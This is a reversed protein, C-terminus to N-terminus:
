KSHVVLLQSVFVVATPEPEGIHRALHDLLNNSSSFTPSGFLTICRGAFRRIVNRGRLAENPYPSTASLAPRFSSNEQSRWDGAQM